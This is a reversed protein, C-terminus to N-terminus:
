QSDSGSSGSSCRLNGFGNSTKIKCSVSSDLSGSRKLRGKGNQQPRVPAPRSPPPMRAGVSVPPQDFSVSAFPQRLTPAANSVPVVPVSKQRLTRAVASSPIVQKDRMKLQGDVGMKVTQHRSSKTPRTKGVPRKMTSQQSAPSSTPPSVSPSRSTSLSGESYPNCVDMLSTSNEPTLSIPIPTIERPSLSVPSMLPSSTLSSVQLGPLSSAEVSSSSTGYTEEAPIEIAIPLDDIANEEVPAAPQLEHILLIFM